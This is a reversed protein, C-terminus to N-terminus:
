KGKPFVESWYYIASEVDKKCYEVYKDYAFEKLWISIMEGQNKTFDQFTSENINILCDVSSKDAQSTASDKEDLQAGDLFYILQDGTGSLAYKYHLNMERILLLPLYKKVSADDLRNIGSNLDDYQDDSLADMPLSCAFVERIKKELLIIDM